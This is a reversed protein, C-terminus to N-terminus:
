NYTSGNSQCLDNFYEEINYIELKSNKAIYLKNNLSRIEKSKEFVNFTETQYNSNNGQKIWSCDIETFGNEKNYTDFILWNKAYGDYHYVDNHNEYVTYESNFLTNGKLSEAQEASTLYTFRSHLLFRGTNTNNDTVEEGFIVNNEFQRSTGYIRNLPAHSKDVWNITTEVNELLSVIDELNMNIPQISRSLTNSTPSSLLVGPSNKHEYFTVLEEQGRSNTMIISIIAEQIDYTLVGRKNDESVEGNIRFTDYNPVNVFYNDKIYRIDHTVVAEILVEFSDENIKVINDVGNFDGILFHHPGNIFWGYVTNLNDTNEIIITETKTMLDVKKLEKNGMNNTMFFIENKSNVKIKEVNNVTTIIEKNLLRDVSWVTYENLSTSEKILLFDTTNLTNIIEINNNFGVTEYNESFPSFIVLENNKVDAVRYSFVTTLFKYQNDSYFDIKNNYTFFDRNFLSMDEEITIQNNRNFHDFKISHDFHYFDINVSNNDTFGVVMDIKEPLFYAQIIDNVINNEKIFLCREILQTYDREEFDLYLTFEQNNKVSQCDTDKINYESLTISDSVMKNGLDENNNIAKYNTLDVSVTTATLPNVTYIYLGSVNNEPKEIFNINYKVNIEVFTDGDWWDERYGNITIPLEISNEISNEIPNILLVNDVLKVRADTSTADYTFIYEDLNNYDLEKYINKVDFMVNLNNLYVNVEIDDLDFITTDSVVANENDHDFVEEKKDNCGILFVFLVIFIRKM